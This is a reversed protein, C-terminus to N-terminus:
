IYPSRLERKESKHYVTLQLRDYEYVSVSFKAFEFKIKIAKIQWQNSEKKAKDRLM